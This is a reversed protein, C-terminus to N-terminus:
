YVILLNGKNKSKISQFSNVKEFHDLGFSLSCGLRRGSELDSTTSTFFRSENGIVMESLLQNPITLPTNKDARIITRLPNIREVIGDYILSGTRSYLQIRDGAVFPRSFFLNIGSVLNSIVAQSGISVFATGVTGVTLLPIVNIGALAIATVGGFAVFVWNSFRSLPIVTRRLDQIFAPDQEANQELIWTVLRNKLSILFWVVAILFGQKFILEIISDLPSLISSLIDLIFEARHEFPGKASSSIVDLSQNVRKVLVQLSHLIALVTLVFTSPSTVARLIEGVTTRSKIKSDTTMEGNPTTEENMRKAVRRLVTIVIFAFTFDVAIEAAARCLPAWMSASIDLFNPATTCQTFVPGRRSSLQNQNLRRNLFFTRKPLNLFRDRDLVRVRRRENSSWTLATVVWGRQCKLQM